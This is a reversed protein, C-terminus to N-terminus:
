THCGPCVWFSPDDWVHTIGQIQRFSDATMAQYTFYCSGGISASGMCDKRTRCIAACKAATDQNVAPYLSSSYQYFNNKLVASFNCVVNSNDTPTCSDGAKYNCTPSKPLPDSSPDCNPCTYCSRHSWVDNKPDFGPEEYDPDPEAFDVETV